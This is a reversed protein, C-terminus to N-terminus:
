VETWDSSLIDTQSPLWPVKHEKEDGGFHGTSGIPSVLYMYPRTMKSHEDPIQIQVYLGKGNWGDRAMPKGQKICSLAWEFNRERM